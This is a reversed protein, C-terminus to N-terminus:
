SAIERTLLNKNEGPLFEVGDGGEGGGCVCVQVVHTNLKRENKKRKVQMEAFM